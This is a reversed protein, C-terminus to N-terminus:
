ILNSANEHLKDIDAPREILFGQGSRINYEKIIELMKETEIGKVCTIAGHVSAVEVLSKLDARDSENEEISDVFQMDFKVYDASIEKLIVLSGFGSGFDDLLIKVGMKRLVNIKEKLLEWDLLRCEKSLELCINKLPFGTYESANKLSEVFFGDEFQSAAINLGMLFDPNKEILKLGDKMAQEMIWIGMEEFAFDYELVPIFDLPKVEGYKENKFRVLAEVGVAKGSAFNVVPQYELYFNECDNVMCNRIEDIMELRTKSGEKWNSSFSVLVGHKRNESEKYAYKLCTYVARENMDFDEVSMLGGSVTLNQKVDDVSIGSQMSRKIRGYIEEVDESELSHSMVAFKSGDMRYVIGDNGVCEQIVWGIRQLLRNGYGYGYEANIDKMRNIGVLLLVSHQRMAQMASLDNFFGTRNRLTTITDTHEIIGENFIVGGVLSPKGEDDRIVAGKFRFLGYNGDNTRVRYNLDYTLIECSILKEMTAEYRKRDEPHVRDAWSFAGDEIYEEPLGFLEVVGLSYRTLKAEVDYLTVYNGGALMSFADFVDDLYQRRNKIM